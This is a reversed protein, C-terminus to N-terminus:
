GGGYAAILAYFIVAGVIWGAIFAGIILWFALTIMREEIEEIFEKM